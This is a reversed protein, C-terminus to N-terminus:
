SGAEKTSDEDDTREYLSVRTLTLRAVFDYPAKVQEGSTNFPIMLGAPSPLQLLRRMRVRSGVDLSSLDGDMKQVVPTAGLSTILNREFEMARTIAVKLQDLGKLRTRERDERVASGLILARTRMYTSMDSLYTGFVAAGGYVQARVAKLERNLDGIKAVLDRRQWVLAAV